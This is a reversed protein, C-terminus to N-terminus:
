ANAERRLRPDLAGELTHGIGTVALITLSLAVGPPILWWRWVDLYSFDLAEHMMMGWSVITPDAIGLFALGAEM